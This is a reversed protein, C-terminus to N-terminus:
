WIGNTLATDLAGSAVFACAASGACRDHRATARSVSCPTACEDEEESSDVRRVNMKLQKSKRSKEQSGGFLGNCKVTKALPLAVQAPADTLVAGVRGLKQRRNDRV